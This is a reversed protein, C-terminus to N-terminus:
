VGSSLGAGHSGDVWATAESGFGMDQPKFARRAKTWCEREECSGLHAGMTCVRIYNSRYNRSVVTIAFVSTSVGSCGISNEHGALAHVKRSRLYGLRQVNLIRGNYGGSVFFAVSTIGCFIDDRTFTNFERDARIDSDALLMTPASPSPPVM